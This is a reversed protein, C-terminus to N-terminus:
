LRVCDYFSDVGPLRPCELGAFTYLDLRLGNTVNMTSNMDGERLGKSLILKEEGYYPRDTFRSFGGDPHLFRLLETTIRSVIDVIDEGSVKCSMLEEVNRFATAINRYDLVYSSNCSRLVEYTSTFVKDAKPLPVKFYKYTQTIKMVGSTYNFSLEKPNEGWFGTEESQISDLFEWQTNLLNSRLPESLMDLLSKRDSLQAGSDYANSWDLCKLWDRFKVESGLEEFMCAIKGDDPMPHLPKAGLYSLATKAAGTVRSTFRKDTFRVTDYFYGDLSSQRSQFFVTLREKMPLPMADILGEHYLTVLALYTDWLSCFYTQPDELSSHACHFGGQESDYLPAMWAMVGGVIEELEKFAETIMLNESNKIM